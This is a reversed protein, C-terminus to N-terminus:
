AVLREALIQERADDAARRSQCTGGRWHCGQGCLHRDTSFIQVLRDIYEQSTWESVRVGWINHILHRARARARETQHRRFARGRM